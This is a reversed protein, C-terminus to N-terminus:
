FRVKKLNRFNELLKLGIRGSKEPHFQVGFINEKWVAVPFRSTEKREPVDCESVGCVIGEDEPAVYFSHVFYFHSGDPIGHFLPCDRTQYVKSWGIHPVRECSLRKVSGKFLGLGKGEGEESFEFLLQMGLCIGLLPRGSNVFKELKERFRGLNESVAAFSGVGPLIVMDADELSSPDESVNGGVARAVNSLNAVGLDLIVIKL